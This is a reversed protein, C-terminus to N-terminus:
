QRVEGKHGCYTCKNDRILEVRKNECNSCYQEYISPYNVLESNIERQTQVLDVHLGTGTLTFNFKM